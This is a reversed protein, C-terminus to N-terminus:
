TDNDAELFHWNNEDMARSFYPSDDKIYVIVSRNDARTSFGFRSFAKIIEKNGLYFFTVTDIDLSRLYLLFETLLADIAEGTNSVLLDSIILNGDELRYVIYGELAGSKRSTVVFTRFDKFPCLAFRWHLFERTREGLMPFNQSATKWLEDFRDDFDDLVEFEYKDASKFASEKSRLRMFFDVLRSVGAALPGIKLAKKVYDRSRLVRVMRVSRGVVRFGQRTAVKESVVNPTAYIFALGAEDIFKFSELTVEAASGQGRHKKEVGFDGAIAIMEENGDIKIRKPFLVTTGVFRDNDDADRAIWYAAPGYMNEEYFWKYKSKPWNPFNVRWFEIFDERDKQLDGRLIKYKM